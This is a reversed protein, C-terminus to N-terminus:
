RQRHALILNKYREPYFVRVIDDAFLAGELTTKLIGNEMTIFGQEQLEQLQEGFIMEAELGFRDKFASLPYEMSKIGFILMRAMDEYITFNYARRVPIEDKELRKYYESLQNENQYIFYGCCSHSSTGIGLMDEGRWTRYRHVQEFEPSLCFSYNDALYYDLDLLKRYAKRVHEIEMQDSMLIMDDLKKRFMKNNLYIEMKYITLNEPRLQAMNEITQMFSEETEGLMGSMLDVNISNVQCVRLMDYTKYFTRSNHNRGNLKLIRDDLSQCGVSVRKLNYQKMLMIKDHTTEPGPRVECCFEIDDKVPFYRYITDMLDKIQEESMLSPTGGGWYISALKRNRFELMKSYLYIEKKIAELYETPISMGRHEYSVYYCFDCKKICYPIHVYLHLDERNWLRETDLKNLLNLPPFQNIFDKRTLKIERM